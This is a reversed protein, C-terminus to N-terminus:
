LLIDKISDVSEVIYTPESESIEEFSGYGYLVGISDVGIKKAGIIDYKRDGVMIVKDKDKVNCLDLVYQIVENKNVRTGDLNSGVIYKFYRDIDFYKLITEAFVTPKSTALLLIKDNTYLMELIEKINKYIKNEFIGKDSFYERYKEVARKAKEDDFKYYEKFTDHLPPGIFQELNDLDEKIGFSDLSYQISKTIGEKPDTLTGDLDFLVIEYNKKM